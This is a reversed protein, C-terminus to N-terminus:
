QINIPFSELGILTQGKPIKALIFRYDDYKVIVHLGKTKAKIWSCLLVIVYHNTYNLELIEEVLSM